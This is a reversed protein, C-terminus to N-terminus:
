ALDSYVLPSKLANWALCARVQPLITFLWVVGLFLYLALLRPTQTRDITQSDWIVALAALLFGLFLALLFRDVGLKFSKM